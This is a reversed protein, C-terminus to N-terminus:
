GEMQNLLIAALTKDQSKQNSLIEMQNLLMEAQLIESEAPEPEIPEVESLSAMQTITMGNIYTDKRMEVGNENTFTETQIIEM